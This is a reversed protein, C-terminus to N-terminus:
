PSFGFTPTTWEIEAGVGCQRVRVEGREVEAVNEGDVVVEQGFGRVQQLKFLRPPAGRQHPLEELFHRVGSCRRM